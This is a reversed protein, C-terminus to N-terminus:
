PTAADPTWRARVNSGGGDVVPPSGPSIRGGFALLPGGVGACVDDLAGDPALYIWAREGAPLQVDLVRVAGPDTQCTGSPVPPAPPAPPQDTGPPDPQVSVSTPPSLQLLGGAHLGGGDDVAVCVWTTSADVQEVALVLSVPGADGSLLSGSTCSDSPDAAAASRPGPLAAGLAILTSLLVTWRRM